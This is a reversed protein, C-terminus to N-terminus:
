GNDVKKRAGFDQPRMLYSPHELGTPAYFVHRQYKFGLQTLLKQSDRNDPHHGAFLSDAHLRAFAHDVVARAAESALGQGWHEPRLHVGFEYIGNVLDYPRLGACGIHESQNLSFIPWYQIGFTQENEIERALRERVQEESLGGRADIYRMVRPDGWLDLALALDEVRWRRFGIRESVLFYLHDPIMIESIDLTDPDGPV